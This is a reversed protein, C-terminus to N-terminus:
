EMGCISKFGDTLREIYRVAEEIDEETPKISETIPFPKNNSTVYNLMTVSKLMAILKERRDYRVDFYKLKKLAKSFVGDTVKVRSLNNRMLGFSKALTETNFGAKNINSIYYRMYDSPSKFAVSIRKIEERKLALFSYRVFSAPDSEFATHFASLDRVNNTCIFSKDFFNKRKFNGSQATKSSHELLEITKSMIYDIHKADLSKNKDNGLETRFYEDCLFAYNSALMAGINEVEKFGGVLGKITQSSGSNVTDGFVRSIVDLVRSKGSRTEGFLVLNFCPMDQEMYMLSCLLIKNTDDDYLWNLYVNKFSDLNGLIDYIDSYSQIVQIDLWNYYQPVDVNGEMEFWGTVVFDYVRNIKYNNSKSWVVSKVGGVTVIVPYRQERYRTKYCHSLSPDIENLFHFETESRVSKPKVAGLIIEKKPEIDLVRGTVVKNPVLFLVLRPQGGIKLSFQESLGLSFQKLNNEDLRKYRPNIDENKFRYHTDDRQLKKEEIFIKTDTGSLWFDPPLVLIPYVTSRMKPTIKKVGVVGKVIGFIWFPVGKVGYGLSGNNKGQKRKQVKKEM